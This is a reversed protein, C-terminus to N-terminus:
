GMSAKLNSFAKEIIELTLRPLDYSSAESPEIWKAELIESSLNLEMSSSKCWFDVLVYHYKVRHDEDRSIWDLVEVIGGIEVELGTEEKIERLLGEKLTEGLEIAGGPLTWKGYGPEKGRKVLLAKDDHFIIAGVGLIPANPYERKM